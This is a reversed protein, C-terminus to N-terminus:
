ERENCICLMEFISNLSTQFRSDNEIGSFNVNAEFIKFENNNINMNEKHKKFHKIVRKSYQDTSLVFTLYSMNLLVYWFM